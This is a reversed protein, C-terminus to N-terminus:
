GGRNRIVFLYRNKAFAIARDKDASTSIFITGKQIEPEEYLQQHSHIDKSEILTSNETRRYYYLPAEIGKKLTSKIDKTGMGRYVFQAESKVASAQYEREAYRATTYTKATNKADKFVNAAPASTFKPGIGLGDVCYWM